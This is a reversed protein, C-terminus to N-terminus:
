AGGSLWITEGNATKVPYRPARGGAVPLKRQGLWGCWLHRCHGLPDYIPCSVGCGYCNWVIGVTWFPRLRPRVETWACLVRTLDMRHVRILAQLAPTQESPKPRYVVEHDQTTRSVFHLAQMEALVESPDNWPEPAHFSHRRFPVGETMCASCFCGVETCGTGKRKIGLHDGAACPKCRKSM